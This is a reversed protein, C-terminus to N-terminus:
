EYPVMKISEQWGMQYIVARVSYDLDEFLAEDLDDDLSLELVADM